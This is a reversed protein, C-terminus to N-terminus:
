NPYFIDKCINIKAFILHDQYSNMSLLVIKIETRNIQRHSLFFFTDLYIAFACSIEKELHHEIKIVVYSTKVFIFIFHSYLM